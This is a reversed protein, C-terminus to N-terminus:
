INIQLFKNINFTLKYFEKNRWPCLGVAYKWVIEINLPWQM